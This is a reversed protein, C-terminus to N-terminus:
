RQPTTPIEIAGVIRRAMQLQAITEDNTKAAKILADLFNGLIEDPPLLTNVPVDDFSEPGKFENDQCLMYKDEGTPMLFWEEHIESSPDEAEEDVGHADLQAVKVNAGYREVLPLMTKFLSDYAGRVKQEDAGQSKFTFSKLSVEMLHSLNIGLKKAEKVLGKEISLTTTAKKVM